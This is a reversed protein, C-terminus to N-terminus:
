DFHRSLYLGGWLHEQPAKSLTTDGAKANISFTLQFGSWGKTVGVGADWVLKRMDDYDVTVESERFQGQLLADYAVARLRAAGWLYLEDSRMVPVFNGRNIPDYPTSWFPSGLQGLRGSLGIGANTQFGLNLDWSHALDWNNGGAFRRSDTVRLRATPEGGDSIQYRWGEPNVPETSGTVDRYWQHLSTQVQNAVNLGLAGVMLEVGLARDDDAVVQKNALYLLSSYPRDDYIPEPDGIDDPTYTVSGLLFSRYVRGCRRDLGLLPDLRKFLGGMLYLPGRDQFVEVGLGMTYDRDDNAGPVLMDQDFYVGVGMGSQDADFLCPDAAAPQASLGITLVLLRPLVRFGPNFLEGAVIGVGADPAVGPASGAVQNMRCVATRLRSPQAPRRAARVSGRSTFDVSDCAPHPRTMLTHKCRIQRSM